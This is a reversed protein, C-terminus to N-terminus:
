NSTYVYLFFTASSVSLTFNLTVMVVHGTSFLCIACCSVRLVIFSSCAVYIAHPVNCFELVYKIHYLKM